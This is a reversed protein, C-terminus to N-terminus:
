TETGTQADCSEQKWVKERTFWEAGMKRLDRKAMKPTYWHGNTQVFVKKSAVFNFGGEENRKFGQILTHEPRPRIKKNVNVIRYRWGIPAPGYEVLFKRCYDHTTNELYYLHSKGDPNTIEVNHNGM